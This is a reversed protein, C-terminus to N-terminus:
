SHKHSASSELKQAQRSLTLIPRPQIAATQHTRRAITSNADLTTRVGAPTIFNTFMASKFDAAERSTPELGIGPVLFYEM